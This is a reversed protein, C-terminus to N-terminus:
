HTAGCPAERLSAYARAAREVDQLARALRDCTQDAMAAVHPVAERWKPDSGLPAFPESVVIATEGDALEFVAIGTPLVAGISLNALLGNLLVAPVAVSLV